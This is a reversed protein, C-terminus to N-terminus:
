REKSILDKYTERERVVRYKDGDIMVECSRLRSNYNSSMAFGYAGACEIVLYKNNEVYPLLRNKGLFDSTECVPGVIDYSSFQKSNNLQVPVINHYAGYFAPRILDTMSGDVIIFNKNKVSKHYLVKVILVGSNGVIYRGPECIVELNSPIMKLLASILQYPTPPTEDKYKIGLGGGIDLYKLKIGLSNLTPILQVVKKTASVFPSLSTIQSGIHFHLGSVILNSQTTLFKCFEVADKIPTGFKTGEEGTSIHSHTETSVEPNIRVAVLVKKNLRRAVRNVLESEEKSELNFILINSKIAYEIEQESKGVGAYVIKKAPIGGRLSRYIEGGSTTDAGGGLQKIIKIIEYNSNSKVAFCILHKRKNFSKDYNTYNELIQNKSYVYLPTNYKKVLSLLSVDEFYLERNVYRLRPSVLKISNM